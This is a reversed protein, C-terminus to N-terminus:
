GAKDQHHKTDYHIARKEMDPWDTISVGSIKFGQNDTVILQLLTQIGYFLGAEDTARVMVQNDGTIVQYGQAQINKPVRHRTLLIAPGSGQIGQKASINWNDKLERILENAAFRDAISADKDPVITVENNFFFAQGAPSVQKPYPIVQLKIAQLDQSFLLAWSAQFGLIVLLAVQKLGQLKIKKIM